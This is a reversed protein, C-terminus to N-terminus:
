RIEITFGEIIDGPVIEVRSEIMLGCEDGSEVKSTKQKAKQLEKVIGTGLKNDRRLVNVRGGVNITGDEVRGGVVQKDKNKSFVKLIKLKGTAVEAESKPVRTKLTEEVWETLKYIINFSNMTVNYQEAIRKAAEDIKVNFGVVIGPTQGSVLLVDNESIDGIGTHIIKPILRPENWKAMEFKVADISGSTDAKITIPVTVTEEPADETDDKETDEKVPEQIYNKAAELAEKKNDFTHFIDGVRPLESWGTVAVPSSFSAESINKGLFNEIIRLPVYSTGSQLAMGNRLTGNKIIITATIGKKKDLNSEIIVGEAKVDPNGTLEELEAALLVLDLLDSIGEGTKASIAAWSIDGGYGEVYIDHEALSQKTREVDAGPKDIKNIAIIYPLKAEKICGLADLTQTNVGDDAAVVLIAIDAAKAGRTRVSSFAEHGPTDLFTIKQDAGDKGKHVVEYSSIHQTIGGAEKETVNTSRIHDLLTSKGHDIHGMVAVVPPRPITNEQPGKNEM